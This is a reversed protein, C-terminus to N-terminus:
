DAQGATELAVHPKAHAPQNDSEDVNVAEQAAAADAQSSRECFRAVVVTINDSGGQENAEDVLRKCTQEASGEKGLEEKIRADSVHNTLGDTCLLLTDGLELNARYVEPVLDDSDGGLVNWLVNSFRSSESNEPTEGQVPTDMQEKFLQSMSHDRTMQELASGRLLYCRSDGVHVVFVRPWIVYAMTLTTGMGQRQPIAESESRIMEQCHKLAAKLEEDFDEDSDQDLRFFWRMTNLAFTAISDVAITSAREGAEHGGMGDAVLLLKGQSGGFLRTQHDLSLSTQHIRMSKKLDAILFQDENKSRRRGIDSTGHVDMQGSPRKGEDPQEAASDHPSQTSM